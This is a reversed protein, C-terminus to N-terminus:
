QSHNVALTCCLSNAPLVPPCNRMALPTLCRQGAFPKMDATANSGMKRQSSSVIMGLFGAAGSLRWGTGRAQASSKATAAEGKPPQHGSKRRGEFYHILRSPEVQIMPFAIPYLIATCTALRKHSQTAVLQSSKRSIFITSFAVFTPVM